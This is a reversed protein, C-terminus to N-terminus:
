PTQLALGRSTERDYGLDEYNGIENEAADRRRWVENAQERQTNTRLGVGLLFSLVSSMRREEYKDESPFLRRYQGIQPLFQQIAYLDRGSMVDNGESDTKIRGMLRLAPTLFRVAAPIETPEDELPIGKWVQKGTAMEFPTKIFPSIQGLAQNPDSAEVLSFLPLDPMLYAQNGDDTWPLRIAFNREFYEPVIGEKESLREINDKLLFYRNIKGPNRVIQELMLPISRRTFTYFPIGVRRISEENLRGPGRGLAEYDFHYKQVKDFAAVEDGGTKVFEDLFLAGRLRNEISGGLERSRRFPEDLVKLARNSIDGAEIEKISQGGTLVGLRKASEYGQLLLPDNVKRVAARAGKPGRTIRLGKGFFPAADPDNAILRELQVYRGEDMDGLWNMFVGGFSNRWHYGPSLLAMKKWTTLLKDHIKMVRPFTSPDSMKGVDRLVGVLDKPLATGTGFQAWQEGTQKLLDNLTRKVVPEWDAGLLDAKAYLQSWPLARVQKNKTGLQKVLQEAQALDKTLKQYQRRSLGTQARPKRLSGMTEPPRDLRQRWLEQGIDLRKLEGGMYEDKLQRSLKQVYDPFVDYADDKFWNTMGNALLFDEIQQEVSRGMAKPDLPDLLKPSTIKNKGKGIEIVEGPVYQRKRTMSKTGGVGKAQPIGFLERAEDTWVRPVYNAQNPLFERGALTHASGRLEDMFGRLATVLQPHRTVAPTTGGGVAHFLDRGDVGLGKATAQLKKWENMMRTEFGKALHRARSETSITQLSDLVSFNDDAGRIAARLPGLNGALGRKAAGGAITELAKNLGTLKRIGAATGAAADGVKTGRAALTTIREPTGLARDLRTLRGLPGTGPTKIYLGGKQGIAALETADLSNVGKRIVKKAAAEAGDRGLASIAGPEAFMKAVKGADDALGVGIYNLPDSGMDLGFGIAARTIPGSFFGEGGPDDAEMIDAFGIHNQANEIFDRWSVGTERVSDTNELGPIDELPSVANIGQRLGEGLETAGAVLYSRPVDLTDLTKGLLAGGGKLWDNPSLPDFGNDGGDDVVREIQADSYGADRMRELVGEPGESYEKKSRSSGGSRKRKVGRASVPTNNFEVRFTRPAAGGPSFQQRNKAVIQMWLPAAM